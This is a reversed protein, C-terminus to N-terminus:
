GAPGFTAVQTSAPSAQSEAERSCHFQHLYNHLAAVDELGHGGSVSRGLEIELEFKVGFRVDHHTRPDPARVSPDMLLDLVSRTKAPLVSAM